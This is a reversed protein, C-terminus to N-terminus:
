KEELKLLKIVGNVRQIMGAAEMRDLWYMAGTQSIKYHAGITRLSPPKGFETQYNQIYAYVKKLLDPNSFPYKFTRIKRRAKTGPKSPHVPVRNFQPSSPRGVGRHRPGLIQAVRQRTIQPTMARGIEAHTMTEAMKQMKQKREAVADTM